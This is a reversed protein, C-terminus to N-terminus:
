PELVIASHILVPPVDIVQGAGVRRILLAKGDPECRAARFTHSEIHIRIDHIAVSEERLPTEVEQLGHDATTNLGNWLHIIVRGDPKKWFTSQVCMPAQVTIPYPTRAAWKVATSLLIRQYPFAYSFLAADVGAAFYVVRGQAHEGSAVVPFADRSGEPFYLVAPQMPPAFAAPRVM